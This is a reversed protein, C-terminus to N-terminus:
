NLIVLYVMWNAKGINMDTVIMVQFYSVAAHMDREAKKDDCDTHTHTDCFYFGM